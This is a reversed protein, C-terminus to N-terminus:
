RDLDDPEGLVKYVRVVNNKMEFIKIQIHQRSVDSSLIKKSHRMLWLTRWSRFYVTERVPNFKFSEAHTVREILVKNTDIKCSDRNDFPKLNSGYVIGAMDQIGNFVGDFECCLDVINRTM